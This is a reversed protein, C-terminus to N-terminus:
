QDCCLDKGKWKHGNEEAFRWALMLSVLVMLVGARWLGWGDTGERMSGTACGVREPDCEKRRQIPGWRADSIKTQVILPYATHGRLLSLMSLVM